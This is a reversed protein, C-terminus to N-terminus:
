REKPARTLVSLSAPSAAREGTGAVIATLRGTAVDFSEATVVGNGSTQQTLHGLADMAAIKRKSAGRLSQYNDNLHM